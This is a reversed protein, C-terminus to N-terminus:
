HELQYKRYGAVGEREFVDNEAELDFLARTSVGIVLTESLDSAM